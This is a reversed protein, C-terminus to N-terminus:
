DVVEMCHELIWAPYDCVLRQYAGRRGLCREGLRSIREGIRWRAAGFQGRGIMREHAEALTKLTNSLKNMCREYHRMASEFEPRAVMCDVYISAAILATNAGAGLYPPMCLGSDGILAAGGAWWADTSVWTFQRVRRGLLQATLNPVLSVLENDALTHQLGAISAPDLHTGGSPEQVEIVLSISRDRNPLGIAMVGRKGAFHIYDPALGHAVAINAPIEANVYAFGSPKRSISGLRRQAIADRVLSHVGDGALMLRAKRVVLKGDHRFILEGNLADAYLLEHGYVIPVRQDEVAQVMATVFPARRVSLLYDEKSCGYQFYHCRGRERICRGNARQGCETLDIGLRQRCVDRGARNLTFNTSAGGAVAILSEFNAARDIVEVSYGAASLELAAALGAVGAGLILVDGKTRLPLSGRQVRDNRSARDAAPNKRDITLGAVPQRSNGGRRNDTQRPLRRAFTRM